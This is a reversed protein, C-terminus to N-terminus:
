KCFREIVYFIFTSWIGIGNSKNQKICLIIVFYYIRTPILYERRFLIIVNRRVPQSGNYQLWSTDVQTFHNTPATYKGSFFAGILEHLTLYLLLSGSPVLTLWKMYYNEKSDLSFPKFPPSTLGTGPPMTNLTSCCKDCPLVLGCVWHRACITM